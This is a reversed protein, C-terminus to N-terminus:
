ITLFIISLVSFIIGLIKRKTIKEKLIFVGLVSTLLIFGAGRLPAIVSLPSEAIGLYYTILGGSVFFGSLLSLLINKRGINIKEKRIIFYSSLAILGFLYQFFLVSYSNNDSLQTKVLFIITGQLFMATLAYYIWNM